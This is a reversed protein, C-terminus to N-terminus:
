KEKSEPPSIELIRCIAAGTDAHECFMWEVGYKTQMTQMIRALSRGDVPPISPIRRDMMQGRAHASNIAKWRKRRPNVWDWVDRLDYIWGEEILVILHIGNSQALQCERRFREHQGILNSEVENLNRKRDIVVSLNDMRAYDGVPLKSRLWKIKHLDLYDRVHDWKQERSDCILTSSGGRM